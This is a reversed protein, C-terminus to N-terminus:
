PVAGERARSTIPEFTAEPVGRQRMFVAWCDGCLSMSGRRGHEDPKVETAVVVPVADCRVRRTPGLTMFSANAPVPKEAQCRRLDPPTLEAVEKKSM